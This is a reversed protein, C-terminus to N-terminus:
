LNESNAGKVKNELDNLYQTLLLEFNRYSYYLYTRKLGQNSSIHNKRINDFDRFATLLFMDVLNSLGKPTRWVHIQRLIKEPSWNRLAFEWVEKWSNFANRAIGACFSQVEHRLAYYENTGTEAEGREFIGKPDYLNSILHQLEHQLTTKLRDDFKVDTISEVVKIIYLDNNYQTFFANMKEGSLHESNPSALCFTVIKPYQKKKPEGHIEIIKELLNGIRMGGIKVIEGRDLLFQIGSPSREMANKYHRQFTTFLLDEMGYTNFM